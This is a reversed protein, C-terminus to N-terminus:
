VLGTRALAPDGLREHDIDWFGRDTDFRWAGSDIAEIWWLVVTGLSEAVARRSEGAFEHDFHRIPTPAGEAVSCDCVMM